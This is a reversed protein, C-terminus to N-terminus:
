RAFSVQDVVASEAAADGAADAKWRWSVQHLGAPLALSEQRWATTGAISAVPHGGNLALSCTDGATGNPIHWWWRLTGPGEIMTTLSAISGPAIPASRMADIGDHTLDNQGFWRAGTKSDTSWWSDVLDTADAAPISADVTASVEDREGTPDNLYFSAQWFGRRQPSGSVTGTASNFDLGTPLGSVTWGASSNASPVTFQFTGAPLPAIDPQQTIFARGQSRLRVDDLWATVTRGAFPEYKWQVTHAGAPIELWVREWGSLTVLPGHSRFEKDDLHLTIRGAAVRVWYSLYDPGQVVTQLASWGPRYPPTRQVPPPLGSVLCDGGDRGGDRQPQWLAASDSATTTFTMARNDLAGQLTPLESVEIGISYYLASGQSYITIAPRWVGAEEPVGTIRGNAANMSLGPPLSGTYPVWGLAPRRTTFQHDVPEGLVAKIWPSSTLGAGADAPRTVRDLLAKGPLGGAQRYTWRIPHAGAPINVSVFAWRAVPAAECSAQVQGGVSFTLSNQATGELAWMFHLTDPGYATATIWSEGAASLAPARVGDMLDVCEASDYHPEWVAGAASGASTYTLRDDDLALQLLSAARVCPAAMALLCTVRAMLVILRHPSM